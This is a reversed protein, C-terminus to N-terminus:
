EDPGSCRHYDSFYLERPRTGARGIRFRRHLKERGKQVALFYQAGAKFFPNFQWAPDMFRKDKADPALDSKGTMIQIVDESFTGAAKFAKDPNAATQRLMLGIAGIFDERALGTLPGLAMTADNAADFAGSISSFPAGKDKAKKKKDAM